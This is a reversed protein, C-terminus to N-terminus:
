SFYHANSLGIYWAKGQQGFDALFIIFPQHTSRGNSFNLFANLAAIESAYKFSGRRQYSMSSSDMLINNKRSSKVM